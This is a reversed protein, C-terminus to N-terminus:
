QKLIKNKNKLYKKWKKIDLHYEKLYPEEQPGNIVEDYIVDKKSIENLVDKEKNILNNIFDYKKM